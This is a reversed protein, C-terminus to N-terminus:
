RRGPDGPKRPPLIVTAAMDYPAPESEATPVPPAVPPPAQQAPPPPAAARPPPATLIVTELTIEGADAPAPAPPAKPPPPSFVMTKDADFFAREPPPASAPPPPRVPQGHMGGSLIMTAELDVRPPAHVVPPAVPPPAPAAFVVPPVPAPEPEVRWRDILTELIARIAPDGPNQLPRSDPPIVPPPSDPVSAPSEHQLECEAQWAEAESRFQSMEDLLGCLRTEFAALRLPFDAHFGQKVLDGM